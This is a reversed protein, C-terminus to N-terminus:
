LKSAQIKTQLEEFKSVLYGFLWFLIGKICTTVVFGCNFYWLRHVLFLSYSLSFSPTHSLVRVNAIIATADAAVIVIIIILSFASKQIYTRDSRISDCRISIYIFEHACRM